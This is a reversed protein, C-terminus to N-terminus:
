AAPRASRRAGPAPRSRNGREGTAFNDFDDMYGFTRRYKLQDLLDVLKTM